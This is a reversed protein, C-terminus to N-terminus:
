ATAECEWRIESATAPASESEQKPSQLTSHHWRNLANLTPTPLVNQIPIALLSTTQLIHIVTRRPRLRHQKRNLVTHKPTLHRQNRRRLRHQTTIIKPHRIASLLNSIRLANPNILLQAGLLHRRHTRQELQLKRHRTRKEARTHNLTPPALRLLSIPTRTLQLPLRLPTRLLKVRGALASIRRLLLSLCRLALALISGRSRKLGAAFRWRLLLPDRDVPESSGETPRARSVM